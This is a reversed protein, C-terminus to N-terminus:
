AERRGAANVRASRPLVVHEDARGGFFEGVKALGVEDDVVGALEGGVAERGAHGRGGRDFDVKLAHLHDDKTGLVGALHLLSDERDHVVELGDLKPLERQVRGGVLRHALLVVHCEEETKGSRALGGERGVRVPDEDTIVLV